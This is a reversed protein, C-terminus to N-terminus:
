LGASPAILPPRDNRPRPTGDAEADRELHHVLRDDRVIAKALKDLERTDIAYFGRSTGFRRGRWQEYPMQTEKLHHGVLGSIYRALGGADYVRKWGHAKESTAGTIRGWVDNSIEACRAAQEDDDLSWVSHYHTRKWDATADRDTFERFWAYRADPNVERRVRRAFQAWGERLQESSAWNRTTSLVAHTMPRDTMTQNLGM